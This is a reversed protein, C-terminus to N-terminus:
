DAEDLQHYVMTASIVGPMTEIERTRELLEFETALELLVILKGQEDRAPVETGGLKELASATADLNEPLCQVLLSAIHASGSGATIIDRRSLGM